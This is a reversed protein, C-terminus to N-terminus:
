DLLIAELDEEDHTIRTVGIDNECASELEDFIEIWQGLSMSDSKLDLSERLPELKKLKEHQDLKKLRILQARVQEYLNLLKIKYRLLSNPHNRRRYEEIEERARRRTEIIDDKVKQWAPIARERTYDEDSSKSKPM